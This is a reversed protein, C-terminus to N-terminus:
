AALDLKPNPLSAKATELVAHSRPPVLNIKQPYRVTKLPVVNFYAGAHLPCTRIDVRSELAFALDALTRLTMNRSGALLGTVNARSTGLARALDAKSINREEMLESIAETAWLVLREEEYLRQVDPSNKLLDKLTESM